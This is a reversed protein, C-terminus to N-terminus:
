CLIVCYQGNLVFARKTQMPVVLRTNKEPCVSWGSMLDGIIKAELNEEIGADAYIENL